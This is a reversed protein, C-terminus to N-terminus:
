DNIELLDLQYTVSTSNGHEVDVKIENTLYVQDSETIGNGSPLFLDPTLVWSYTKATATTVSAFGSIQVAVGALSDWAYVRPTLTVSGSIATIPLILMGRRNSWTTATSTATSTRAQSTLLTTDAM